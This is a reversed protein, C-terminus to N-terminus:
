TEEKPLKPIKMWHTVYMGNVGENSFHDGQIYGNGLIDDHWMAEGYFHMDSGAFKYAIFYHGRSKPKEDEVSIWEMMKAVERFHDQERLAAVAMDLAECLANRSVDHEKLVRDRYEITDELKKIAEERTM